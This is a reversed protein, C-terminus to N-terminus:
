QSKQGKLQVYRDIGGPAPLYINGERDIAVTSPYTIKIQGVLKGQLSYVWIYSNQFDNVYVENGWVTVGTTNNSPVFKLPWARRFAGEPSFVQIRQNGHDVVYINGKADTALRSPNKLKGKATGPGAFRRLEKGEPSYRVIKMDQSDSVLVDGNAAVAIAVANRAPWRRVWDGGPTFASVEQNVQDLVYINGKADIAVDTPSFNERQAGESTIAMLFEGTTAKWALVKKWESDVLFLRGQGDIKETMTGKFAQLRQPEGREGFTAVAKLARQRDVKGKFLVVVEVAVLVAIVGLIVMIVSRPKEGGAPAAPPMGTATQAASALPPEQVAAGGAQARGRAGRRVSSDRSGALTKQNRAKGTTKKGTAM